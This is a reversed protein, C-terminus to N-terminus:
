LKGAVPALIKEGLVDAMCRFFLMAAEAASNGSGICSSADSAGLQSLQMGHSDFLGINLDALNVVKLDAGSIQSRAQRANVNGKIRYAPEFAPKVVYYGKGTLHAVIGRTVTTDNLAQNELYQAVDVAITKDGLLTRLHKVIKATDKELKVQLKCNMLGGQMTTCGVVEYKKVFGAASTTISDNIVVANKVQTKSVLFVGLVGEVATRLAEKVATSQDTGIGEVLVTKSFANPLGIFASLWVVLTLIIVRNKVM